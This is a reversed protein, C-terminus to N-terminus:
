RRRSSGHARWGVAPRADRARRGRRGGPRHRSDHHHEGDRLVAVAAVHHRDAREDDTRRRTRLSRSRVTRPRLRQRAADGLVSEYLRKLLKSELRSARRPQGANERLAPLFPPLWRCGPMTADKYVLISFMVFLTLVSTALPFVGSMVLNEISYADIDVRYVADSTSTTIHHHLGLAQLHNFLRYRLDYVMRQGTDIQVQTGYASVFQNVVQLVIGAIVVGVLFVFRNGRTMADIFAQVADPFVATGLVHDIAIALPWPQLAGLVIESVLLVALSV